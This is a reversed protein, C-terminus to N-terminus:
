DLRTDTYITLLKTKDTMISGVPIDQGFSNELKAIKGKLQKDNHFPYM